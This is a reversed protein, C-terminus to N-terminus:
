ALGKLLRFVMMGKSDQLLGVFLKVRLTLATLSNHWCVFTCAGLLLYKVSCTYYTLWTHDYGLCHLAKYVM